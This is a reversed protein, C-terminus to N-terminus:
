PVYKQPVMSMLQSYLLQTPKKNPKDSNYFPDIEPFDKRSIKRDKIKENYM